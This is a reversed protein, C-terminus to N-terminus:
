TPMVTKRAKRAFFGRKRARAVPVGAAVRPPHRLRLGVSLLLVGRALAYMGLLLEILSTRAMPYHLLLAGLALSLTAALAMPLRGGPLPLGVCGFLLAGGTLIAWASTLLGVTSVSPDPWQLVFGAVFLGLLGQAVLPAGRKHHHILYLGTLLALAGDLTMFGGAGMALLAPPAAPHQLALVGFLLACAGRLALVWWHRAFDLKFATHRGMIM